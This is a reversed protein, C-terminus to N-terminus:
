QQQEAAAHNAARCQGAKSVSKEEDEEEEEDDAFGYNPCVPKALYSM